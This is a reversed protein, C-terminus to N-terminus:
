KHEDKSIKNKKSMLMAKAKEFSSKPLESLNSIVFTENFKIADTNTEQILKAIEQRQAENIWEEVQPANQMNDATAIGGVIGIGLFGLARGVASTEANEVHDKKNVPGQSAREYATGTSIIVGDSNFVKCVITATEDTISLPETIFYCGKYQEDMRFFMVRDKVETYHKGKLNITPINKIDSM